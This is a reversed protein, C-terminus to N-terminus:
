NTLKVLEINYNIDPKSSFYYEGIQKFYKYNEVWEQLINKYKLECEEYTNYFYILSDLEEHEQDGYFDSVTYKICVLLYYM